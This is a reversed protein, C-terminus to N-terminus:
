ASTNFSVGGTELVVAFRRLRGWHGPNRERGGEAFIPRGWASELGGGTLLGTSTSM